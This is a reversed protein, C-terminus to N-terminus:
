CRHHMLHQFHAALNSAIRQFREAGIEGIFGKIDGPAVTGLFLVRIVSPRTLGSDPFDACREDLVEDLGPLATHLQTSIGCVVYDQFPRTRFIVLVPRNKWVGDAQPLPAIAIKGSGM